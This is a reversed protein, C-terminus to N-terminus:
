DRGVLLAAAFAPGYQKTQITEVFENYESITLMKTSGKRYKHELYMRLQDISWGSEERITFLRKLQAETVLKEAPKEPADVKTEAPAGGVKIPNSAKPANQAPPKTGAAPKRDTYGTTNKPDSDLDDDAVCGTIASLSYRKGYTMDGGVEKPDSSSTMPWVSELEQGSVGHILKTVLLLREGRFELLHTFALNNQALPGRVADVIDAYDAYNFSYPAKEKPRVHVTKTKKPQVFAAQAKALAGAIESQAPPASRGADKAVQVM